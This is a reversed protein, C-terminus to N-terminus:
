RHSCHDLDRWQLHPQQQHVSGSPVRGFLLQTTAVSTQKGGSSQQWVYLLRAPRQRVWWVVLQMVLLPPQHM